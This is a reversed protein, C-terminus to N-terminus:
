GRAARRRRETDSVARVGSTTVRGDEAKAVLYHWDAFAAVQALHTVVIVQTHRLWLRLGAGSRWRSGAASM